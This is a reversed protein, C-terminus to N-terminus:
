RDLPAVKEGDQYLGSREAEHARGDQGYWIVEGNLKGERYAAERLLTGDARRSVWPGTRLGRDYAGSDQRAGNPHFTNWEGTRSGAAYNGRGKSGDEYTESWAGTELGDAYSGTATVEGQDNRFVFEGHKRWEGDSFRERGEVTVIGAHGEERLRRLTGERTEPGCSLAGVGMALILATRVLADLEQRPM